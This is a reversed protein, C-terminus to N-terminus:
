EATIIEYGFGTIRVDEKRLEILGAQHMFVLLSTDELPIKIKLEEVTQKDQKRLLDLIRDAKEGLESM